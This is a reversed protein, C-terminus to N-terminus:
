MIGDGGCIRCNVLKKSNKHEGTKLLCEMCSTIRPKTGFAQGHTKDYPEGAACIGTADCHDCPVGLKERKPEEPKKEMAPAPPPAQIAAQIKPQTEVPFTKKTEVIATKKKPSSKKKVVKKAATKKVAKKAVAKKATSKKATAKKAAAKKATKKPAKKATKKAIAKKKAPM